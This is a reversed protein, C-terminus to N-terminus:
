AKDRCKEIAVILEKIPTEPKEFYDTVGLERVRRELEDSHFATIVIICVDEYDKSERMKVLIEEGSMGPLRIDLLLADPKQEQIIKWADTGTEATTVHYDHMKFKTSLTKIMMRDDEVLLLKFDKKM